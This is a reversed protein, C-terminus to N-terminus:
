EESKKTHKEAPTADAWLAKPWAREGQPGKVVHADDTDTALRGPVDVVEDPKVTKNADPVFLENPSVNRFRPM